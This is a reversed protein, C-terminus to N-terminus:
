LQYVAGLLEALAPLVTAVEPRPTKALWDALLEHIAGVLGVALTDFDSDPVVGATALRAHAEALAAAHRRVAARRLADLVPSVGVIEVLAVRARRPDDALHGAFARLASDVQAAVTLPAQQQATRLALHLEDVIEGYLEALLQERGPHLEYFHRPSVGAAACLGTLSTAAYGDTGFLELGADLLRRRRGERRQDPSLGRWPRGTVEADTQM